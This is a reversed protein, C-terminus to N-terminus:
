TFQCSRRLSASALNPMDIVSTVSVRQEFCQVINGIDALGTASEFNPL